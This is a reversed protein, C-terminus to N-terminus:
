KHNIARYIIEEHEELIGEFAREIPPVGQWMDSGCIGHSRFLSFDRKRVCTCIKDLLIYMDEICKQEKTQEM